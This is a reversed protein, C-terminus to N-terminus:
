VDKNFNKPFYIWSLKGNEANKLAKRQIRPPVYVGLDKRRSNPGFDLVFRPIKFNAKVINYDAFKGMQRLKKVERDPTQKLVINAKTSGPFIFPDGDAVRSMVKDLFRCFIKRVLRSNDHVNYKDQLWVGKAEPKKKLYKKTTEKSVPFLDTSNKIFKKSYRAKITRSGDPNIVYEAM